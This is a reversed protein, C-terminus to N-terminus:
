IIFIAYRAQPPEHSTVIRMTARLQESEPVDYMGGFNRDPAEHPVEQQDAMTFLMRISKM